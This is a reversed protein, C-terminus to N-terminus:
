VNCGGICNNIKGHKKTEPRCFRIYIKVFQRLMYLNYKHLRLLLPLMGAAEGMISARFCM